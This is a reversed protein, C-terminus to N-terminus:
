TEHATTQNHNTCKKQPQQQHKQQQHSRTQQLYKVLNPQTKKQTTSKPNHLPPHPRQSLPQQNTTVQEDAM